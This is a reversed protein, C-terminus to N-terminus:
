RMKCISHSIWCNSRIDYSCGVGYNRTFSHQLGERSACCWDNIMNLSLPTFVFSKSGDAVEKECFKHGAFDKQGFHFPRYLAM